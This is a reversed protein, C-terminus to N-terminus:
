CVHEAQVDGWVPFPKHTSAPVSLHLQPIIVFSMAIKNSKPVARFDGPYMDERVMELACAAQYCWALFRQM